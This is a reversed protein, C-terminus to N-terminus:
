SPYLNLHVVALQMLTFSENAITSLMLVHGLNLGTYQSGTLVNEINLEICSV